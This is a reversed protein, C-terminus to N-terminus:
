LSALTPFLDPTQSLLSTPYTLLRVDPACPPITVLPHIAKTICQCQDFVPSPSCRCLSAGVTRSWTHIHVSVYTGLFVVTWLLPERLCVPEPWGPLLVGLSPTTGVQLGLVPSASAPAYYDSVVWPM